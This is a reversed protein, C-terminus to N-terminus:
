RYPCVCVLSARKPTCLIKQRASTTRKINNGKKLQQQQQGKINTFTSPTPPPPYFTPGASTSWSPSLPPIKQTRLKRAWESVVCVAAFFLIEACKSNKQFMKTFFQGEGTAEHHKHCAWIIRGDKMQIEYVASQIQVLRDTTHVRINCVGRKIQTATPHRYTDTHRFINRPPPPHHFVIQNGM